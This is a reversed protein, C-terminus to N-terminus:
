FIAIRNVRHKIDSEQLSKCLKEFMNKVSGFEIVIKTDAKEHDLMFVLQDVAYLRNVKPGTSLIVPKLGLNLYSAPNTHV